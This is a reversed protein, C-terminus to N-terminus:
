NREDRGYQGRDQHEGDSPPCMPSGLAERACWFVVRHNDVDDLPEASSRRDHGNPCQVNGDGVVSALRTESSLRLGRM